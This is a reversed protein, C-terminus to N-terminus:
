SLLEFIKKENNINIKYKFLVFLTAFLFFSFVFPFCQKSYRTSTILFYYLKKSPWGYFMSKNDSQDVIEIHLSGIAKTESRV